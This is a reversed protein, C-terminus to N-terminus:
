FGFRLTLTHISTTHPPEIDIKKKYVFIRTWLLCLGSRQAVAVARQLRSSEFHVEHM